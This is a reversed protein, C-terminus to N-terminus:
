RHDSEWAPIDDVDVSVPASSVTTETQTQRAELALRLTDSYDRGRARENTDLKRLCSFKLVSYPNGSMPSTRKEASISTVVDTFAVGATGLKTLYQRWTRVSSAPLSMTTPLLATNTLYFLRARLTCAIRLTEPDRTLSMSCSACLGGPNGYGHIGDESSCRPRNGSTPETSSWLTRQPHWHLIIVDLSSEGHVGELDEVEFLTKGNTPIVQRPLDFPSFSDGFNRVILDNLSPTDTAFVAFQSPPKVVLAKEKSM